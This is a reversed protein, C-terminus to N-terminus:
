SLYENLKNKWIVFHEDQKTIIKDHNIHEFTLEKDRQFNKRYKERGSKTISIEKEVQKFQKEIEYVSKSISWIYTAHTELLEWVFHNNENGEVTFLFGFHPKITFKLPYGLSQKEESLYELQKRNRGKKSLLIKLIDKESQEFTNKEKKESDIQSFIEDVSFLEQTSDELSSYNLLNVTRDYKIGEILEPTIKDVDKSTAKIGIITNGAWSIIIDVKWKSIKLKRVFWSKIFDFKELIHVNEVNFFLEEEIGKLRGNFTVCGTKFQTNELPVLLDSYKVERIKQEIQSLSKPNNFNDIITNQVVTTNRHNIEDLYGLEILKGKSIRFSVEDLKELDLPLKFSIRPPENRTATQTEFKTFDKCNYDLLDLKLEHNLANIELLKVKWYINSKFKLYENPPLNTQEFPVSLNPNFFIRNNDIKIIFEKKEM